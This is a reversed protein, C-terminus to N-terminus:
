RTELANGKIRTRIVKNEKSCTEAVIMSPRDMAVGQIVRYSNWGESLSSFVNHETLYAGLACAAVGTAPDENYGARKPFQRAQVSQGNNQEIAFPYFGTTHYEDCLKWLYEYVPTLRNLTEVSKLPIILKYRSASVSQVPFDHIDDM